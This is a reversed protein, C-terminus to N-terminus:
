QFIVLLGNLLEIVSPAGAITSQYLRGTEPKELYSEVNFNPTLVQWSRILKKRQDISVQQASYRRRGDVKLLVMIEIPRVQKMLQSLQQYKQKLERSAEYIGWLMRTPVIIAVAIMMILIARAFADHAPYLQVGVVIFFSEMLVMIVMIVRINQKLEAQYYGTLADNIAKM